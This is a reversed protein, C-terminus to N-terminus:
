YLMYLYKLIYKLVFNLNYFRAVYKFQLTHIYALYFTHIFFLKDSQKDHRLTGRGVNNMSNDYNMIKKQDTKSWKYKMIFFM